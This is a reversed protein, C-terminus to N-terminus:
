EIVRVWRQLRGVLRAYGEGVVHPPPLEFPGDSGEFARIPGTLADAIIGLPADPRLEAITETHNLTCAMDWAMNLCNLTEDRITRPWRSVPRLSWLLPRCLDLRTIERETPGEQGSELSQRARSLRASSPWAANGELLTLAGLTPVFLISKGDNVLHEEEDGGQGWFTFGSVMPMRIYLLWLEENALTYPNQLEISM